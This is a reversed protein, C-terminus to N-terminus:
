AGAIVRVPRGDPRGSDKAIVALCEASEAGWAQGHCAIDIESLGITKPTGADIPPAATTASGLSTLAIGSPPVLAMAMFATLIVLFFLIMPHDASRQRLAIKPFRGNRERPRLNRDFDKDTIATM